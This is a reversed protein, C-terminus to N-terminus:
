IQRYLMMTEEWWDSLLSWPTTYVSLTTGTRMYPIPSFLGHHQISLYLPGQDWTHSQHSSVMINYLSISHNRTEHISNTLLFLSWEIQRHLMMIEEWWDWAMCSVLSWEIQRDLVMTEEWWDWVYQHSSIMINCLCISHDMTEHISNTLLSWPTTYVSLTAGTRMYPIPSFLGHNQISLYLPTEEWWDWVRSVLSWEKQRYLMM